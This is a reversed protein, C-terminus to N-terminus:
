DIKQKTEIKNIEVTINAIEMEEAWRHALVKKRNERLHTILNNIQYTEKKLTPMIIIFKVM